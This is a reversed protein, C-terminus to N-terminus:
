RSKSLESFPLAKQVQACLKTKNKTELLGILDDYAAKTEAVKKGQLILPQLLICLFTQVFVLFKELYEGSSYSDFSICDETDRSNSHLYFQYLDQIFVRFSRRFKNPGGPDIPLIREFKENLSVIMPGDEKHYSILKKKSLKDAAQNFGSSSKKPNCLGNDRYAKKWEAVTVKQSEDTKDSYLRRLINLAEGAKGAVALPIERKLARQIVIPLRFIQRYSDFFGFFKSDLSTLTDISRQDLENM